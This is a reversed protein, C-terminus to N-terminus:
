GTLPYNRGPAKFFNYKLVTQHITNEVQHRYLVFCLNTESLRCVEKTGDFLLFDSRLLFLVSLSSELFTCIVMCLKSGSVVLIISQIAAGYIM